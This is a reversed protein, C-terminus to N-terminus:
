ELQLYRIEQGAAPAIAYVPQVSANLDFTVGEGAPLPFGDSTTVDEDFGVYVIEGNSDPARVAVSLTSTDFDLIPVADTGVDVQGYGGSSAPPERGTTSM